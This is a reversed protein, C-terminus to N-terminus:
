VPHFVLFQINAKTAEQTFLEFEVQLRRIYEKRQKLRKEMLFNKTQVLRQNLFPNDYQRSCIEQINQYVQPTVGEIKSIELLVETNINQIKDFTSQAKDIEDESLWVKGILEVLRTYVARRSLNMLNVM